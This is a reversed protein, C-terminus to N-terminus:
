IHFMTVRENYQEICQRGREKCRKYEGFVHSPINLIDKQLEIAKLHQPQNEERRM